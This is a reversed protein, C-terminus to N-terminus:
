LNRSPSHRKQRRRNQWPNGNAITGPKGDITLLIVIDDHPLDSARVVPIFAVAYYWRQDVGQSLRNLQINSTEWYSDDTVLKRLQTRATAEIGGLSVPPAQSPNWEPSAEIDRQFLAAWINTGASTFPACKQGTRYEL